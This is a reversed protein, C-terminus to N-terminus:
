RFLFVRIISCLLLVLSLIFGAMTPVLSRADLFFLAVIIGSVFLAICQFFCISFFSTARTHLIKRINMLIFFLTCWFLVIGLVFFSLTPYFIAFVAACLTCYASLHLAQRVVHRPQPANFVGYHLYKELNLM